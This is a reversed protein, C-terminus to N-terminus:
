VTSMAFSMGAALGAWEAPKSPLPVGHRPSWLMLVAGGHSLAAFAAGAATLRERLFFHAYIATWAPSLYFLLMVSLVDGHITGWVFGLNTVG